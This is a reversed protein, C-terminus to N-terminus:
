GRPRDSRPPRAARRARSAAPSAARAGRRTPGGSPAAAGAGARRRRARRAPAARSRRSSSRGGPARRGAGGRRRRAGAGARRDLEGVRDRAVQRLQARRQEARQEVDRACGRGRRRCAAATRPPRPTGASRAPAAGARARGRRRAASRRGHTRRAPAVAVRRRDVEEGGLAHERPQQVREADVPAELRRVLREQVRSSRRPDEDAAHVDAPDALDMRQDRGLPVQAVRDGANSSSRSATGSGAIASYRSSLSNGSTRSSM